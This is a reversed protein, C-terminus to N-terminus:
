TVEMTSDILPDPQTIAVASQICTCCHAMVVMVQLEDWVLGRM